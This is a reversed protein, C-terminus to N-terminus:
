RVVPIQIKSALRREKQAKNVRRLVAQNHETWKEEMGPHRGEKWHKKIHRLSKFLRAERAIAWHSKVDPDWVRRLVAFRRRGRNFHRSGMAHRQKGQHQTSRQRRKFLGLGSVLGRFSFRSERVHKGSPRTSRTAKQMGIQM